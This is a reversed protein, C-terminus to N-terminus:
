KKQIKFVNASSLDLILVFGPRIEQDRTFIIDIPIGEHRKWTKGGDSSSMLYNPCPTHPFCGEELLIGIVDQGEQTLIYIPQELPTQTGTSWNGKISETYKMEYYLNADVPYFFSNEGSMNTRFPTWTQGGDVTRYHAGDLGVIFGLDETKWLFEQRHIQSIDLDILSWTVGGDETQFLEYGDDLSGKYEIANAFGRTPSVFSIKRFFTDEREFIEWTNGGDISRHVLGQSTKNVFDVQTTTLWLNQEDLAFFTPPNPSYPIEFIGTFNKGGDTTKFLFPGIRFGVSENVFQTKESFNFVWSSFIKKVEWNELPITEIAPLEEKGCALCLLLVIWSFIKKINM